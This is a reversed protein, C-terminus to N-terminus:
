SHAQMVMDTDNQAPRAPIRRGSRAGCFHSFCGDIESAITLRVNVPHTRSPISLPAPVDARLFNRVCILMLLLWLDLLRAAAAVNAAPDVAGTTTSAAATPSGGAGASAGTSSTDGDDHGAARAASSLACPFDVGLASAASSSSGLWRSAANKSEAGSLACQPTSGAAGEAANEISVECRRSRSALYTRAAIM